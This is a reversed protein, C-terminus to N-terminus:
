KVCYPLDFCLKVLIESLNVANKPKNIEKHIRTNKFTRDGNVVGKIPKYRNATEEFNTHSDM